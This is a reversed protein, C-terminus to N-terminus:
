MADAAHVMSREGIPLARIDDESVNALDESTTAAFDTMLNAADFTLSGVGAGVSGGFQSLAETYLFPTPGKMRIQGPGQRVFDGMKGVVSALRGLLKSGRVMPLKMLQKQFANIKEPSIIARQDVGFEAKANNAILSKVLMDRNKIYPVITGTVDGVLELDKREIGTATEFPELKQQKQAALIEMAANQEAAIENIGGYGKLEGSKLLADVAFKQDDNLNRIDLSKNDLASQIEKITAM